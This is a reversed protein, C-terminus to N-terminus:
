KLIIYLLIINIIWTTIELWMSERYKWLMFYEYWKGAYWRKGAGHGLKDLAVHLTIPPVYSLWHKFNHINDYWTWDGDKAKWEGYLDPVAAIIGTAISIPINSTLAYGMIFGQLSHNATDM